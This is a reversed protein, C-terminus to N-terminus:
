SLMCSVIASVGLCFSHFQADFSSSSELKTDGSSMESSNWKNSGSSEGYSAFSSSASSSTTSQDSSGFSDIDVQFM